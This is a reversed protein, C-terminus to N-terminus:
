TKSNRSTRRLRIGRARSEAWNRLSIRGLFTTNPPYSAAAAFPRLAGAIQAEIGRDKRIERWPKSGYRVLDPAHALCYAAGSIVPQVIATM